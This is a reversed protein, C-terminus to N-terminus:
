KHKRKSLLLKILCRSLTKEIVEGFVNLVCFIFLGGNETKIYDRIQKNIAFHTYNLIEKQGYENSADVVTKKQTVNNMM